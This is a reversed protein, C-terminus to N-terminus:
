NKAEEIEDQIDKNFGSQETIYNLLDYYESPNDIMAKLLDEPTMVEYSDQLEANYLDPFVIAHVILKDLYANSDIKDRFMNRKGPVPVERTCEMRIAETEETTLPKIEWLLPNGKEDVLTKTAPYFTNKRVKKNKKMFLALNGM